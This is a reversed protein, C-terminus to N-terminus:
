LADCQMAKLFEVNGAAKLADAQCENSGSVCVVVTESTCHAQAMDNTAKTIEVFSLAGVRLQVSVFLAM